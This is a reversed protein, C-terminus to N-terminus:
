TKKLNKETIRKEEGRLIRRINERHTFVLLAAVIVAFIISPLDKVFVATSVPLSCAAIISSLSIIRSALVVILFVAAACAVPIPILVALAGLSTAVGKGGKFKLYPSFMNGLIAFVTIGIRWITGEPLCHLGSCVLLPAAGKLADIALVLIFGKWGMVRKVNTAGINGSGVTRIDKGTALRVVIMGTPIGTLFFAAISALIFWLIM